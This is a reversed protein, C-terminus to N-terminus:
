GGHSAASHAPTSLGFIFIQAFREALADPTLAGTPNYWNYIWNMMGFLAYAAVHPDVRSGNEGEVDAILNRLLEVYKRKLGNIDALRPGSLSNAEHSLVKMESMHSAFFAVHHRIFRELRETPAVKAALATEAGALVAAFSRQQILYLLEDKGSIYHYLGALSMGTARSLDRMTTSHFGKDAFVKATTALIQELREDFPAATM